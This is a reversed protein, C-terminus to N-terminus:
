RGEMVNIGDGFDLVRPAHVHRREPPPVEEWDGYVIRCFGEPSGPARVTVGAFDITSTPLLIGDGFPMPRSTTPNAWRGTRVDTKCLQWFRRSLGDSRTSLRLLAHAVCFGM